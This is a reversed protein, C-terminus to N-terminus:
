GKAESVVRMEKPNPDPTVSTKVAHDEMAQPVSPALNEQRIHLREQGTGGLVSSAVHALKIVKGKSKRAFIKKM